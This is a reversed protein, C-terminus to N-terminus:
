TSSCAGNWERSNLLPKEVIVADGHHPSPVVEICVIGRSVRRSSMYLSFGPRTIDSLHLNANRLIWLGPRTQYTTTFTHLLLGANSQVNDKTLQIHDRKLQNWATKSHNRVSENDIMDESSTSSNQLIPNTSTVVRQVTGPKKATLHERM